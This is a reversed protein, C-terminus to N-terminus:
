KTQNFEALHADAARKATLTNGFGTAQVVMKGNPHLIGVLWGYSIPSYGLWVQKRHNTRLQNGYRTLNRKLLWLTM